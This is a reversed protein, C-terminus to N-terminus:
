PTTDPEGQTADEAGEDQSVDTEIETPEDMLEAPAEEMQASEETPLYLGGMQGCGALAPTIATCLLATSLVRM